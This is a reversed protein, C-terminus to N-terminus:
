RHQERKHVRLGERTRYYHSNSNREWDMDKGPSREVSTAPTPSTASLITPKLTLGLTQGSAKKEVCLAPM